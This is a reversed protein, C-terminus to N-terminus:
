TLPNPREPINGGTKHVGLYAPFRQESSGGHSSGCWRPGALDLPTLVGLFEFLLSNQQGLSGINPEGAHRPIQADVPDNWSNFLTVLLTSLSALDAKDVFVLGRRTESSSRHWSANAAPIAKGM